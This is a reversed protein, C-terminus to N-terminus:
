AGGMGVKGRADAILDHAKHGLDHVQREALHRADNAWGSIKDRMMTRRANGREPDLLYMLGVGVAFGTVIMAVDRHM